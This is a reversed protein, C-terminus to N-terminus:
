KREQYLFAIRYAAYAVFPAVVVDIVYHVHQVIVCTAVLFTFVLFVLRLKQHKTVLALLFMTSTHGSFFLDKTPASGDGVFQVLPDQLVILKDSPNLPLLFMMVARVCVLITYAQIALLFDRPKNRLYVVAICVAAYIMGFTAWTLDQPQILRLIPDDVTVGSRQEVWGLYRTFLILTVAFAVISSLFQTRFRADRLETNWSAIIDRM